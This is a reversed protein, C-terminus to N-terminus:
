DRSLYAAQGAPLERGPRLASCGRQRNDEEAPRPPPRAPLMLHLPRGGAGHRHRLRGPRAPQQPHRVAGRGGDVGEGEGGLGLRGGGARHVELGGEPRVQGPGALPGVPDAGHLQALVQRAETRRQQLLEVARGDGIDATLQVLSEALVQGRKESKHVRWFLRM